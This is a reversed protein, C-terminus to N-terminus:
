AAWCAALGVLSGAAGCLGQRIWRPADLPCCRVDPQWEHFAAAALSTGGLAAAAAALHFTSAGGVLLFPTTVLLWGELICVALLGATSWQPFDFRLRAVAIVGLHAACGALYPALLDPRRFEKALVLWVLGCAAVCLVAHVNHVQRGDRALPSLFAYALFLALPPVLWTAGGIAWASYGFLVAAPLGGGKLTTWRHYVAALGVLALMVATRGLLAAADLELYQRLLYFGILPIFLNDLGQWAIAEVFTALLAVLLAVLLSEARGVDTTLLIPVHASLFAAAFFAASGELSKSGDEVEYHFRGYRVGVLAAVADALTLTLLPVVYLLAQRAPPADQHRALVFLLAVAVPFYLEGWSARAVGGLVQGLRMRLSPVTRLAVLAGAALVALLVVPRSSAFLWPFTVALLGMGVHLIKRVVEPHPKAAHQFWALLAIMGGLTGLVILMGAAPNLM